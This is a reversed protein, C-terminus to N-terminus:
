RRVPLIPPREYFALAGSTALATDATGCQELEDKVHLRAKELRKMARATFPGHGLDLVFTREGRAAAEISALAFRHYHHVAHAFLPQLTQPLSDDAPWAGGNDAAWVRQVYAEFDQLQPGLWARPSPDQLFHAVLVGVVIFDALCARGGLLFPHHRFHDALLGMLQDFDARIAHSQDADAGQVRCAFAGFSEVMGQGFGTLEAQQAATLPVDKSQDFVMNAGFGQGAAAIDEPYCWRAHLAHRPFWHNFFDELVFCAGRQAPTTPIVPVAPFRADLMPGVAITDHLLWGDPTQLLPIFRTQARTELQPTRALTKFQWRHPIAQYRLQAELKRSFMSLESGILTYTGRYM